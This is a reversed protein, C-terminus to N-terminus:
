ACAPRDGLRGRRARVVADLMLKRLADAEEVVLAVPLPEPPPLDQWVGPLLPAIKVM